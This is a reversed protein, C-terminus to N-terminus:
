GLSRFAMRTLQEQKGQSYWQSQSSEVKGNSQLTPPIGGNKPKRPFLTWDRGQRGKEHLVHGKEPQDTFPDKLAPSHSVNHSTRYYTLNFASLHTHSPSLVSEYHPHPPPSQAPIHM